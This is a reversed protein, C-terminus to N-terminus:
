RHTETNDTASFDPEEGSSKKDPKLFNWIVPIFAISPIVIFIVPIAGYAADIVNKAFLDPLAGNKVAIGWQIGILLLMFGIGEFCCLNRLAECFRKLKEENQSARPLFSFARFLEKRYAHYFGVPYFLLLLFATVQLFLVFFCFDIQEPLMVLLVLSLLVGVIFTGYFTKRLM